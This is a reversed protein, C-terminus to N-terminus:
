FTKLFFTIEVKFLYAFQFMITPASKGVKKGRQITSPYQSERVLVSPFELLRHYLHDYVVLSESFEISLRPGDDVREKKKALGKVRKKEGM